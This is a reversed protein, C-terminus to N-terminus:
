HGNELHVQTLRYWLTEIRNRINNSTLTISTTTVVPALVHLAGTLINGGVFGCRTKVSWIGNRDGMWCHWLVSPFIGCKLSRSVGLDDPPRELKTESWYLSRAVKLSPQWPEWWGQSVLVGFSFYTIITSPLHLCTSLKDAALCDTDALSGRSEIRTTLASSVWSSAMLLDTHTHKGICVSVAIFLIRYSYCVVNVFIYKILYM